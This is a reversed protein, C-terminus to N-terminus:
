AESVEDNEDRAENDFFDLIACNPHIIYVTHTRQQGRAGEMLDDENTNSTVSMLIKDKELKKLLKY